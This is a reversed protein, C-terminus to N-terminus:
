LLRGFTELDRNLLTKLSSYEFNVRPIEVSGYNGFLKGSFGFVFQFNERGWIRMRLAMQTPIVSTQPFSKSRNPGDSFRPVSSLCSVCWQRVSAITDLLRKTEWKTSKHRCYTTITGYPVLFRLLRLWPTLPVPWM